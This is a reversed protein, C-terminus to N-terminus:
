AQDQVEVVREEVPGARERDQSGFTGAARSFRVHHLSGGHPLGDERVLRIRKGGPWTLEAAEDGAHDAEREPDRCRPEGAWVERESHRLDGEPVPQGPPETAESRHRDQPHERDDDVIQSIRDVAQRLDAMNTAVLEQETHRREVLFQAAAKWARHEGSAPINGPPPTGTLIHRAWMECTKRFAGLNPQDPLVPVEGFLRLVRAVLDLAPDLDEEPVAHV